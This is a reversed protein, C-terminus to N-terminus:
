LDSNLFGKERELITSLWPSLFLNINSTKQSSHFHVCFNVIELTSLLVIPSLYELHVTSPLLSFEILTNM